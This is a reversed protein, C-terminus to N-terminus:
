PNLVNGDHADVPEPALLHPSTIAVVIAPFKVLVSAVVILVIFLVVVILHHSIPRLFSVSSGPTQM